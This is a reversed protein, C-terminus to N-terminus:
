EKRLADFFCRGNTVTKIISYNVDKFIDQVYNDYKLRHNTIIIVM